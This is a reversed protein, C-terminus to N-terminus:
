PKVSAKSPLLRKLYPVTFHSCLGTFLGTVFGSFLLVPVYVFIGTTQTILYAVLLQGLNHFLAGVVSTLFLFHGDLFRNILLCAALCLIGGALSYTLSIIQGFLLACLLIRACLVLLIEYPRYFNLMLLTVINALGLKVGYIPFPNPLLLELWSLCLALATFFALQLMRNTKM